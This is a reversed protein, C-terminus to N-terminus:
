GMRASEIRAAAIECYEQVSATKDTSGDDVVIYSTVDQRLQPRAM